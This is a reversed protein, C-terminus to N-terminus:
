SFFPSDTFRSTKDEAGLSGGPESRGALQPSLVLERPTIRQQVEPIDHAHMDGIDFDQQVVYRPSHEEVNVRPEVRVAPDVM